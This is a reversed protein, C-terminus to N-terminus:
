FSSWLIYVLVGCPLGYYKRLACVQVKTDSPPRHAAWSLAPWTLCSPGRSIEPTTTSSISLQPVAASSSASPGRRLMSERPPVVKAMVDHHEPTRPPSPSTRCPPTSGADHDGGEQKGAAGRAGGCAVFRRVTLTRGFPHSLQGPRTHSSWPM